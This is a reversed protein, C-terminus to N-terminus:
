CWETVSTQMSTPKELKPLKLARNMSRIPSAGDAYRRRTRDITCTGPVMGAARIGPHKRRMPPKDGDANASESRLKRSAQAVCNRCVETQETVSTEIRTLSVLMM